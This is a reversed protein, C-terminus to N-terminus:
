NLTHYLAEGTTMSFTNNVVWNVGRGVADGAQYASILQIAAPIPNAGGAVGKTEQDTLERM